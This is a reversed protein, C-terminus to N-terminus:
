MELQNILIGDLHLVQPLTVNDLSQNFYYGFTISILSQPFKVNDLSQNFDWGFTLSTLSQPFIVNDLSQNFDYDFILETGKIFSSVDISMKKIYSQFKLVIIKKFLNM